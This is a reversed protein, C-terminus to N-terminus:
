RLGQRDAAVLVEVSDQPRRGSHLTLPHSRLRAILFCAKATHEMTIVVKTGPSAVLDMAGGMGKVLKGQFPTILDRVIVDTQLRVPIM